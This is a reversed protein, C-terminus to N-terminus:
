TGKQGDRNSGKGRHNKQGKFQRILTYGLYVYMASQQRGIKLTFDLYLILASLFFYSQPSTKKFFSCAFSRFSLNFVLWKGHVVEKKQFSEM